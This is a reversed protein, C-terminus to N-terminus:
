FFEDFVVNGGLNIFATDRLDHVAIIILNPPKNKASNVLWVCGLRGNCKNSMLNISDKIM